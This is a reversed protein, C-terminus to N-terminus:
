MEIIILFSAISDKFLNNVDKQKKVLRQTMHTPAKLLHRSCVRTNKRFLFKYRFYIIIVLLSRIM